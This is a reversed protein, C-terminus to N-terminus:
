WEGLSIREDMLVAYIYSPGQLHQVPVTNQLPRLGFAEEFNSRPINRNTTSPILCGSRIEYTFPKNRIQFFEEGAHSEIRSWVETFEM